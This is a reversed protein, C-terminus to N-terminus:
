RTIKLPASFTTTFSGNLASVTGSFDVYSVLRDTAASGTVQYIIAGVASLTAGTFSEASGFSATAWHNVTDLAVTAAVSGGSGSTYSGSTACENAVDARVAWAALNAASPAASVLLFKFTDSSFNIQGLLLRECLKDFNTSVTM